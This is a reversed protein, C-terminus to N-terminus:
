MLKPRKAVDSSLLRTREYELSLLEKIETLSSLRSVAEAISRWQEYVISRVVMKAELLSVPNMSLDKLGIGVLLPIYRPDGAMEGCVAVPKGAAGAAESVGRILRLVAPDLPQYLASVMDNDRDVALTYQILDNTGISLFDLEKVLRDALIAASPVEIMAGMPIAEDFPVGQARLEKKSLEVLELAQRVEEISSIMPFLMRVPGHASAKLIARIQQKFLETERLFIRVSRYGLFPNKEMRKGRGDLFKDGGFDLTRITVERGGSRSVVKQYLVSQEEESLFHGWVLAPMETRYLGVGHAQFHVAYELDALCGINAWLQVPHGDQTESPLPITKELESRYVERKKQLATYNQIIEAPPNIVITGMDGDVALLDGKAVKARLGELGVVAPIGLSRALIAAHSEKGGSETAFALVKGRDLRVTDSPTLERAVVIVPEKFDCAEQHVSTLKEIIRRGVDRLDVGRDRIYPDDVREFAKSFEDVQRLVASEANMGNERIDKLIRAVYYPDELIAAHALFIAAEEKGIKRSMRFNDEILEEITRRVAEKLRLAEEETEEQAVTRRQVRLLIDQFVCAM